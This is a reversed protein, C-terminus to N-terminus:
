ANIHPSGTINEEKKNNPMTPSPLFVFGSESGLKGDDELSNIAKAIRSDTSDIEEFLELKRVKGSGVYDLVVLKLVRINDIM